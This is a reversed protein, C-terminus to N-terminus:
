DQAIERLREIEDNFAHPIFVAVVHLWREALYSVDVGKEKAVHRLAAEWLIRATKFSDNQEMAREWEAPSMIGRITTFENTDFLKHM